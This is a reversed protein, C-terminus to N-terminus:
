LTMTNRSCNDIKVFEDPSNTSKLLYSCYNSMDRRMTYRASRAYRAYRAEGRGIHHGNEMTLEAPPWLM